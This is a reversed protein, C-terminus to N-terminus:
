LGSPTFHYGSGRVSRSDGSVSYLKNLVSVQMADIGLKKAIDRGSLGERILQHVADALELSTMAKRQVNETLQELLLTSTAAQAAENDQNSPQEIVMVPLESLGAMLAARYRREGSIIRFRGVDVLCVRIPQLIGYQKISEALGALTRAENVEDPAELERRPQEHDVEIQEIPLYQLTPKDTSPNM